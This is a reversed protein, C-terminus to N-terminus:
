ILLQIWWETTAAIVVLAAAIWLVVKTMRHSVSTGCSPGGCIARSKRYVRWFGYGVNAGAFALFLPQYPALRTLTGIWAGSIGSLALVLPVLCCSSAGIAGLVGGMALFGNKARDSIHNDMMFSISCDTAVVSALGSIFLSSVFDLAAAIVIPASDSLVPTLM